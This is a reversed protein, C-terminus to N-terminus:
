TPILLLLYFQMSEIHCEERGNIISTEEVIIQRSLIYNFFTRVREALNPPVKRQRLFDEVAQM